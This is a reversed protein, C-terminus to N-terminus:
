KFSFVKWFSENWKLYYCGIDICSISYNKGLSFEGFSNTSRDTERSYKDWFNNIWSWEDISSEGIIKWNFYEWFSLNNGHWSEPIESSFEFFRSCNKSETYLFSNESIAIIEELFCDIYHQCLILASWEYRPFINHINSRFKIRQIIIFEILVFVENTCSISSCLIYSFSNELIWPM